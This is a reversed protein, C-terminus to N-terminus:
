RSTARADAYGRKAYYHLRGDTGRWAVQPKGADHFLAALRVRLPTGADAAAQVVAFTHEDVTLDHYRSEQEFGIAPELEPLLKCSCARTAPSGCRRRRIRASCSSRCSGWGTPQSAAASESARSSACRRRGRRADAAADSPRPRPRVALRLAARARPATSGRRLQERSVTRLRASACTRSAATRISSSATTSGARWRTSRSTAGPSIRRSPRRPISSSRSTTAARARRSRAGRRRSSSAPRFSSRPDRPRAPLAAGRGRARRRRAGRDRRAALLAARLGAIDVGPVLFDADKSDVGLLEDRVAGGVVYAGLDLSRVYEEIRKTVRVARTRDSRDRRARRVSAKRGRGDLACAAHRRRAERLGREDGRLRRPEAPLGDDERAPRAVLGGGRPDRAPERVGAGDAAGIEGASLEKDGPRLSLQGSVFVFGNAKIAQSYPAGQFPAPAAETRVVDKM